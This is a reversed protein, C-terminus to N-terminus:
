RCPRAPFDRDDLDVVGDDVAQALLGGEAVNDVDGDDVHGIGRIRPDDAAVVRAIRGGCTAALSVLEGPFKETWILGAANAVLPILVMPM